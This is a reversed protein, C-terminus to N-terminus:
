GTQARRRRQLIIGAVISVEYFVVM